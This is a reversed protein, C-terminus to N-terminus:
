NVREAYATFSYSSAGPAPYDITVSGGNSAILACGSVLQNVATAVPAIGYTFFASSYSPFALTDVYFLPAVTSVGSLSDTYRVAIVTSINGSSPRFSACVRHTGAPVGTALPTGTGSFVFTEPYYYEVIPVGALGATTVGALKTFVGSGNIVTAGVSGNWGFDVGHVNDFTVLQNFNTGGNFVASGNFTQTAGYTKAAFGGLTQATDTTMMDSPACGSCANINLTDIYASQWHHSFDGLSYTSTTAPSISQATTNGHITVLGSTVDFTDTASVYFHHETSNGQLGYTSQGGGASLDIDGSSSASVMGTRTGSHQFIVTSAASLGATTNNITFGGGTSSAVDLQLTAGTAAIDATFTKVGTVTQATDTTMMDPAAGCGICSGTITLNGGVKMDGGAVELRYGPSATGIGVNGGSTIRMRESLGTTGTQFTLDTPVSGPAVTGNVIAVMGATGGTGVFGSGDYPFALIKGIEDGNQIASPSAPTGRAKRFAFGAGNTNDAYRDAWNFTNGSVHLTGVPTATGIGVSGGTYYITTGSVTWPNTGGGGGSGCTVWGLTTASIWGWCQGASGDTAPLAWVINGSVTSPAKFGIYHTATAAELDRFRLEGSATLDTSPIITVTNTDQACVHVAAALILLFTRM